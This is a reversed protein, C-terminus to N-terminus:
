FLFYLVCVVILYLVTPVLFILGIVKFIMGKRDNIKNNMGM